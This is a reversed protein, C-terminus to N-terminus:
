AEAESVIAKIVFGWSFLNPFLKALLRNRSDRYEVAKWGSKILMHKFDSFSWLWLHVSSKYPGTQQPIHGRLISLRYKWWAANTYSFVGCKTFSRFKRLVSEPNRLHELLDIMTVFDFKEKVPILQNEVDCIYAKVGKEKALQVAAPSIDLGIGTCGKSTALYHLFSGDGCGVDLVHSKPDILNAAVRHIRIIGRRYRGERWVNDEVKGGNLIL